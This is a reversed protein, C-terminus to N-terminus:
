KNYSKVAMVATTTFGPPNQAVYALNSVTQSTFVFSISGRALISGNVTLTTQNQTFTLNNGSYVLGTAIFSGNNGNCSYIISGNITMMAPYNSFENIQIAPQTGGVKDMTINGTAIICATTTQVGLLTLNGNVYIVGGAPTAPITGSAYTKDGNFYYGNASAISQYFSTDVVPFSPVGTTDTGTRSITGNFSPGSPSLTNGNINTSSGGGTSSFSLDSGSAFLYNLASAPPATVEATLIRSVGDTTGTATVLTRGSSTTVTASYTGPGLTTSLYNASTTFSSNLTGLAYALGAQALYNAQNSKKLRNFFYVSNNTISFISGGVLIMMCMAVM